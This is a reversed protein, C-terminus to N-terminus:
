DDALEESINKIIYSGNYNIVATYNGRALQIYKEDICIIREPNDSHYRIRGKDDLLYYYANLYDGADTSILIRDNDTVQNLYYNGELDYQLTDKLYVKTKYIGNHNYKIFILDGFTYDVTYDVANPLDIDFQMGTDCGIFEIRDSDYRYLMRINNLSFDSTCGTYPNGAEDV